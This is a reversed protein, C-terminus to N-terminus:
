QRAPYGAGSLRLRATNTEAETMFPGVQVEFKEKQAQRNSIVFAPLSKQLLEKAIIEARSKEYGEYVVLVRATTIAPSQQPAAGADSQAAVSSEPAKDGQWSGIISIDLIMEDISDLTALSKNLKLVMTRFLERAQESYLHISLTYDRDVSDTLLETLSPPTHIKETFSWCYAPLKVTAGNIKLSASSGHEYSTRGIRAPWLENVAIDFSFDTGPVFLNESKLSAKGSASQIGVARPPAFHGDQLNFQLRLRSDANEIVAFTGTVAPAICTIQDGCAIVTRGRKDAADRAIFQYRVVSGTDRFSLKAGQLFAKEREQQKARVLALQSGITQRIAADNVRLHLQEASDCIPKASIPDDGLAARTAVTLRAEAEVYTNLDQSLSTTRQLYDRSFPLDEPKLEAPDKKILRWYEPTWTFVPENTYPNRGIESGTVRHSRRYAVATSGSRLAEYNILAQIYDHADLASEVDRIGAIMISIPDDASFSGESRLQKQLAAAYSKTDKVGEIPPGEGRQRVCDVYAKVVETADDSTLRGSQHYRKEVKDLDGSHCSAGGSERNRVLANLVRVAGETPQATVFLNEVDEKTPRNGSQALALPILCVCSVLSLVLTRCKLRAGRIKVM